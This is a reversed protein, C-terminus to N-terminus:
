ISVAGHLRRQTEADVPVSTSPRCSRQKEHHRHNKFQLSKFSNDCKSFVFEKQCILCGRHSTTIDCGIQGPSKITVTKTLFDFLSSVDGLQVDAQPGRSKIRDFHQQVVTISLSKQNHVGCARWFFATKAVGGDVPRAYICCGEQNDMEARPHLPFVNTDSARSMKAATSMNTKKKPKKQPPWCPRNHTQNGPAPNSNANRGGTQTPDTCTSRSGGATWLRACQTDVRIPLPKHM